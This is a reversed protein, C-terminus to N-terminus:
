FLLSFLTHCFDCRIVAYQFPAAKGEEPQPVGAPTGKGIHGIGFPLIINYLTRCLAEINHLDVCQGLPIAAAARQSQIRKGCLVAQMKGIVAGQVFGIKGTGPTHRGKGRVVADGQGNRHLPAIINGTCPSGCLVRLIYQGCGHHFRDYFLDALGKRGIVRHKQDAPICIKFGLLRQLPIQPNCPQNVFKCRIRRQSVVEFAPAIRQRLFQSFICCEIQVLGTVVRGVLVRRPSQRFTEAGPERLFRYQVALRAILLHAVATQGVSAM